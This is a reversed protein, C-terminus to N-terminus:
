DVCASRGRAGQWSDFMDVHCVDATYHIGVEDASEGDRTWTCTAAGSQKNCDRADLGGICAIKHRGDHCLCGASGPTCPNSDTHHHCTRNSATPEITFDSGHNM